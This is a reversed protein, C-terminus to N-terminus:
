TVQPPPKCIRATKELAMAPHKVVQSEHDKGGHRDLLGCLRRGCRCRHMVMFIALRVAALLTSIAKRATNEGAPELPDGAM